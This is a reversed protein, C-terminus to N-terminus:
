VRPQNMAALMNGYVANLSALNKNLHAVQETFQQTDAASNNFQQLTHAISDYHQSIAKLKTGTDQLELEYISNLHQLNDALKHVQEHYVTVDSGGASISALDSSAKEFAANLKDVSGTAGKVRETFQNTALSADSVHSIAAVKDGFTRLGDGLNGILEPSIRADALMKDLAATNGTNAAPRVTAKPLEGEYETALEPYVRTWDVDKEETQFGLLLFLLAETGLGLIILWDGAPWHQLKAMLGIIVVTAGWSVINNIGIKFKRKEAM